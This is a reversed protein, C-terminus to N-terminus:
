PTNCTVHLVFCNLHVFVLYVVGRGVQVGLLNEDFYPRCRTVTGPVVVMLLARVIIDYHLSDFGEPLASTKELKTKVKESVAPFPM